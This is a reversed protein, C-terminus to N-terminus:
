NYEKIIEAIVVKEKEQTIKEVFDIAEELTKYCAPCEYLAMNIIVPRWLNLLRSIFGFWTNSEVTYTINNYNTTEKVIRYAMKVFEQLEM